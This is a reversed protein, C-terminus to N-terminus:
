MFHIPPKILLSSMDSLLQLVPQSPQKLGCVNAIVSNKCGATLTKYIALHPLQLVKDVFYSSAFIGCCMLLFTSLSYWAVQWSPM